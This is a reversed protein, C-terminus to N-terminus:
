YVLYLLVYVVIGLAFSTMWLPAAIRGVQAHRTTPLNALPTSAALLLAYYLLPICVMALGVHIALVPLYVYHYVSDPGPFTGTGGVAVLRYLYLVLFTAFLIVSLLMASRHRRVNGRRIAVWGYGITVIAVLSVIANVTPIAELVTSPATPVVTSPIVGGAASFVLALSVASLLGTLVGVRDSSVTVM